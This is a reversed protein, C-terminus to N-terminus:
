ITGRWWEITDTLPGTLDTDCNFRVEERLRTVDAVIEHPENARAPLVGIRLLESRGVIDAISEAIDKLRTGAGSAINVAGAVDSDLLAAFAAATHRVYLFDRIQNGHSTTAEANRLLARIVSPIMREEPENPGFPFFIRGSAFSLNATEAFKDLTLYLAYKAAGYLAQPRMRTETESYPGSQSWDYEACTGATVIREGGHKAFQRALFLSARLWDLNEAADWFSGPRVYWALHLLHSANVERVLETVDETRLLDAHHWVVNRQQIKQRNSSVAHVSFNRELLYPIVCQGVFGTAGTLLVKKM